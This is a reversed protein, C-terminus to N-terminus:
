FCVFECVANNFGLPFCSHLVEISREFRPVCAFVRCNWYCVFISLRLVPFGGRMEEELGGEQNM